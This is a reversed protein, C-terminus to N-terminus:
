RAFAAVLEIHSSWRFQDVLTVPGPRFGAAALIAADRAFSVPNCSVAVVRPVPSRAIERMQAEAGARPPDIVVADLRALEDAGLPRRFLDRTETTVTKLGGARRWAADLAALMDADAEVAHVEARASLPLAFTGCGAFLDAVRRAGATGALVASRLAAEGEATAQLFGGPPPVVRIGGFTQAPPRRTVITEGDVALRALDHRDALAALTARDPGTLARTGTVALDPGAGSAALTLRIGGKRSGLLATLEECAPLAALLQPALLRCDPIATVTGSAPAHFGVVPGSRLRRGSLVARRRSNPPSTFPGVLEAAIGRAALATRVVERKWGELFSDSAHMLGCGGCFRYHRCPATVRDASPTVIKPRTLRDGEIAGTVVEGPLTRPIYVPGEAIGEGLHGLRVVTLTM